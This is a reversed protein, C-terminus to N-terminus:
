PTLVALGDPAREVTLRGDEVVVDLEGGGVRIGRVVLRDYPFPEIPALRILGAPVDAELGILTRVMLAASAAAWAQPRCAGPYPLPSGGSRREDGAFLEPLRYDFHAAAAVLGDLLGGASTGFGACALNAAAIATDHPWISGAHYSLPNFGASAASLTRVGWGSNMDQGTLRRAVLACEDPGLLGTCPLHGMNSAVSDVARKDRDLAVAPYRGGADEVWFRARFRAALEGAWARWEDGGPRGCADLLAAGCHAAEYAYGQVECLAIPPEALRGDAHQIGDHSDKWGQNALGRGSPLYEVFGDGDPDANSALWALAADAAPLLEALEDDPLGWRRTEDLVTVFLLTADVTGYYTGPFFHLAQRPGPRLEHVIKGPAEEREADHVRGQLGALVRLTSAALTPDLPLAMRAAWLADRGFLTLYWPAGAAVFRHGDTPDAMTLADLDAVSQRVLEGVGPNSCDVQLRDAGSPAARFRPRTGASTQVDLGLRVMMSRGPPLSARWVLRGARADAANIEGPEPQAVLGIAIDGSASRWLLRTGDRHPPIPAVTQGGRVQSIDALDSAVEVELEVDVAHADLNRVVLEDVDRLSAHHRRELLLEPDPRSGSFVVASTFRASM